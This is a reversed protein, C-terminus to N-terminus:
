YTGSPFLGGSVNYKLGNCKFSGKISLGQMYIDFEVDTLTYFGQYNSEVEAATIKYGELNPIVKLGKYRVDPADVTGNLTSMFNSIYLSCTEGKDDLVFMYASQEHSGHNGNAENLMTTTTYSYLLQSTVVLSPADASYVPQRYWLMRTELDIMLPIYHVPGEVMEVNYVSGKLQKLKMEPTELLQTAGNQDKYSTTLRITKATNNLEVKGTNQSFVVTNSYGYNTDIFRANLAMDIIQVDDDDNVPEDDHGCASFMTLALLSFLLLSLKKM